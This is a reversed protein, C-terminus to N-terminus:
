CTGNRYTSEKPDHPTNDCPNFSQVLRLHPKPLTVGPEEIEVAISLSIRLARWDLGLLDCAYIFGEPDESEMPDPERGILLWYKSAKIIELNPNCILDCIVNQIRHAAIEAKTM